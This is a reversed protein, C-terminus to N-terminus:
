LTLVWSKIFSTVWPPQWDLCGRVSMAMSWHSRPLKEPSQRKGFSVLQTVNHIFDLWYLSYHRNHLPPSMCIWRVWQTAWIPWSDLKLNMLLGQCFFYLLCWSFSAYCTWMYCNGLCLYMYRWVFAYVCMYM